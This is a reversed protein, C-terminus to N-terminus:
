TIYNSNNVTINKCYYQAKQINGVIGLVDKGLETYELLEVSDLMNLVDAKEMGAPSHSLKEEM